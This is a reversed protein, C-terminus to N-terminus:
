DRYMAKIRGWTTSETAVTADCLCSQDANIVLRGGDVELFDQFTCTSTIICCNNPHPAAELNSCTSSTGYIQYRANLVVTDVSRCSIYGVAIGSPSIGNGLMGAPVIDELWTGNFGASPALSFMIGVVGYAAADSGAIRHVVYIDATGPGADSLTCQSLSADSYLAVRGGDTAHAAQSVCGLAFIM